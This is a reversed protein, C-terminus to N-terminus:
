QFSLAEQPIKLDQLIESKLIVKSYTWLHLRFERAYKNKVEATQSVQNDQLTHSSFLTRYYLTHM